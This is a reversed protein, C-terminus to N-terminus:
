IYIYIHDRTAADTGGGGGGGEEAALGPREDSCVTM